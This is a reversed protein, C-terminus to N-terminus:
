VDWHTRWPKCLKADKGECGTEVVRACQEVRERWAKREKVLEVEFLSSVQEVLRVHLKRLRRNESMISKAAEQVRGIYEEM